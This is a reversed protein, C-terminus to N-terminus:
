RTRKGEARLRARYRHKAALRCIRCGREQRGTKPDIWIYTNAADYPHGGPCETKAAQGWDGPLGHERLHDGQTKPELHDLRVCAPNHCLHHLVKSGLPGIEREWRARYAYRRGDIARGDSARIRGPWRECPTDPRPTM